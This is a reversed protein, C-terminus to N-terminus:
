VKIIQVQSFFSIKILLSRLLIVLEVLIASETTKEQVQKTRCQEGVFTCLININNKQCVQLIQIDDVSPIPTCWSEGVQEFIQIFRSPDPASKM